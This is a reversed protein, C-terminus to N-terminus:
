AYVDTGKKAYQHVRYLSHANVVELLQAIKHQKFYLDFSRLYYPGVVDLIREYKHTQARDCRSGVKRLHECGFIDGITLNQEILAHKQTDCLLSLDFLCEAYLLPSNPNKLYLVSHRTLTDEAQLQKHVQVSIKQQAKEELFATTSTSLKLYDKLLQQGRARQIDTSAEFYALEDANTDDITSHFASLAKSTLEM